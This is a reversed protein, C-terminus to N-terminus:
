PSTVTINNIGKIRSYGSSSYLDIYVRIDWKKKMSTAFQNSYYEVLKYKRVAWPGAEDIYLHDDNM